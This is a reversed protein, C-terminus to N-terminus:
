SATSSCLQDLEARLQVLARGSDIGWGVIRGILLSAVALLGHGVPTLRDIEQVLWM